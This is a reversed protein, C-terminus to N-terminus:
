ANFRLSAKATERPYVSTQTLTRRFPEHIALARHQADLWICVFAEEKRSALRLRLYDRVAGPSTLAASEKLKEQLSRRALEIAAAFQARKAPGLGKISELEAGAELMHMVGNYQTLLERALDVASKGRVGSRLLVAVLEADSLAGAGNALLRERPRETAPWHSIAM